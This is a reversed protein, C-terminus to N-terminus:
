PQVFCFACDLLSGVVFRINSLNAIQCEHKAAYESISLLFAMVYALILKAMLGFWSTWLLGDNVSFCSRPALHM